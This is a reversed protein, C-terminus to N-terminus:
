LSLYPAPESLNPSEILPVFLSSHPEMVPELERVMVPELERVMVPELERVMVPERVM